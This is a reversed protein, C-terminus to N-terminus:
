HQHGSAGQRGGGAFAHDQMKKTGMMSAFPNRAKARGRNMKAKPPSLWSTRLTGTDDNMEADNDSFVLAKTPPWWSAPLGKSQKYSPKAGGSQSGGGGHAHQM